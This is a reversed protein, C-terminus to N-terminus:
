GAVRDYLRRAATILDARTPPSKAGTPWGAGVLYYYSGKAFAINEGSFQTKVGGFGVAGPMGAVAFTTVHGVARDAQVEAAVETRAASSSRFQEVISLGEAPTGNTPLLRERLAAVFGLRQLRAVVRARESAPYENEAVWSEANVGIVRRDQPKFGPLENALLIHGAVGRLAAPPASVSHTSPPATAAASTTGKHSADGCGTLAAAALLAGAIRCRVTM